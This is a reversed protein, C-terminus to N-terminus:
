KLEKFNFHSNNSSAHITMYKVLDKYSIRVGDLKFSVKEGANIEIYFRGKDARKSLTYTMFRISSAKTQATAVAMFAIANAETVALDAELKAVAAAKEAEHQVRLEERYEDYFVKLEATHTRLTRVLSAARMLAAAYNEAAEAEDLVINEDRGGSSRGIDYKWTGESGYADRHIYVRLSDASWFGTVKYAVSSIDGRAIGRLDWESEVFQSTTVNDM